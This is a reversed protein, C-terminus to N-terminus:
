ELVAKVKEKDIQVKGERLILELFEISTVKFFCKESKLYLDSDQLIQLVEKTIQENEELTNTFILIDDIYIILYEQNIYDRFLNNMM